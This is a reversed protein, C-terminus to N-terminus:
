GCELLVHMIELSSVGQNAFSFHPSEISKLASFGEVSLEASAAQRSFLTELRHLPNIGAKVIAIGAKAIVIGAKAIVSRGQCQDLGEISRGRNPPCEKVKNM